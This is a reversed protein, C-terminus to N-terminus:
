NIVYTFAAVRSPALNNSIKTYLTARARTCASSSIRPIAILLLRDGKREYSLRLNRIIRALQERVETLKPVLRSERCALRFGTDGLLFRELLPRDKRFSSSVNDVVSVNADRQSRTLSRGRNEREFKM